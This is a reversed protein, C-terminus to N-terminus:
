KDTQASEYFEKKLREYTTLASEMNFNEEKIHRFYNYLAKEISVAPMISRQGDVFFLMAIDEAQRKYIRPITKIYSKESPM